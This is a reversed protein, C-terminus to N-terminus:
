APRITVWTLATRRATSHKQRASVSAHSRLANALQGHLAAHLCPHHCARATHQLTSSPRTHHALHLSQRLDTVQMYPASAPCSLHPLLASSAWARFRRSLTLGRRGCCPGHRRAVVCCHASSLVARLRPAVARCALTHCRFPASLMARQAACAKCAAMPGACACALLRLVCRSHASSAPM